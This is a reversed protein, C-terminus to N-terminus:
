QFDRLMSDVRRVGKWKKQTEYLSLSKKLQAIAERSRGRKILMVGKLEHAQANKPDIKIAQEFAWKANEFERLNLLIAALGLYADVNNRNLQIAKRYAAKAKSNDGMNGSIFGKAYHYDSNNPSLAVARRYAALAASFNGQQAYLYGIGSFISGNKPELTAAQKYVSIAGNYDRSNVLRRGENLLQRVQSTSKKQAVLIKAQAIVSVEPNSEAPEVALTQNSQGFFLVGINVISMAVAITLFNTQAKRYNKLLKNLRFVSVDTNSESLTKATKILISKLFLRWTQIHSLFLCRHDVASHYDNENQEDIIIMRM